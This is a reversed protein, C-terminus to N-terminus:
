LQWRGPSQAPPFNSNGDARFTLRIYIFFNIIQEDASLIRDARGSSSLLWLLQHKKRRGWKCLVGQQADAM